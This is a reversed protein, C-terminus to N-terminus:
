TKSNSNLADLSWRYDSLTSLLFSGASLTFVSYSLPSAIGFSITMSVAFLLSLVGSGLAALRTWKGLLLLVGFAIEGITALVAFVSAISAPLFGMVETAYKLFTEWNGWSIHKGGPPGWVGLRDLGPVLYGIGIAIRLYLQSIQASKKM